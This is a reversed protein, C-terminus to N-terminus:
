KYGLAALREDIDHSSNRGYDAETRSSESQLTPELTEGDTATLEV